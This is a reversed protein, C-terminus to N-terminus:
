SGFMDYQLSGDSYTNLFFEDARQEDGSWGQPCTKLEILERIRAEEDLITIESKKIMVIKQNRERQKLDLKVRCWDNFVMSCSKFYEGPRGTYPGSTVVIRDGPSFEKNVTKM